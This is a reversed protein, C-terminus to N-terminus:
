LNPGGAAVELRTRALAADLRAGDLLLRTQQLAALSGLVDLNTVLGNRYDDQQARTNKEALDAAKELAAIRRLAAGLGDHASRVESLATREAASLSQRAADRRAEAERTRSTIAGGYYLPLVGSLTADWRVDRSIGARKLYYNGDLAILPWRERSNVAISLEAADLSRRAAEVDPRGRAAQLFADRTEPAPAALAAPALDEDLGTLFRLTEQALQERGSVAELEAEASALQSEAALVESERSRGLKRFDQLEKVRGRTLDRVAARIGREDRVGLLSVYAAAVDQYLLSRVRRLGLETADKQRKAAKYALFDRFGSFLPQHGTFKYEPRYTKNFSSGAGTTDGADQSIQVASFAVRPKVYSLIEDVKAEAEAVGAATQAVRESRALALRFAEDLAIARGPAAEQGYIFSPLALAEVVSLVLLVLLLRRM